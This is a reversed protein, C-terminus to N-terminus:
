NKSQSKSLQERIGELIIIKSDTIKIGNRKIVELCNITLFHNNNRILFEVFEDDTYNDDAYICLLKCFAEPTKIRKNLIELQEVSLWMHALQTLLTLNFKGPYRLCFRFVKKTFSKEDIAFIIELLCEKLKSSFVSKKLLKLLLREDVIDKTYNDLLLETNNNKLWKTNILFSILNNINCKASEM